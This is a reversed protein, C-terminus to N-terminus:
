TVKIRRWGKVTRNLSFSVITAKASLGNERSWKSINKIIIEENTDINKLYHTKSNKSGIIERAEPCTNMGNKDGVNIKLRKMTTRRKENTTEDYVGPNNEKMRISRREIETESLNLKKGKSSNSIKEKILASKEEGYIDEYSKGKQKQSWVFLAQKSKKIAEESVLHRFNGGAGEEESLNAWATSEVINWLQSYYRGWERVEDNSQCERLIETDVDYGHMKIHSRWYKGSGKYKEPNTSSTKGLYKLGTVRHTKVYLYIM